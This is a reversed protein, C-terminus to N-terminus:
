VSGKAANAKAIRANLREIFLDIAPKGMSVFAPGLFPYAPVRGTSARRRSTISGAAYRRKSARVKGSQLRRLFHTVGAAGGKRPVIKHGGEVFRFYFPDGSRPRQRLQKKSAKVTVYVGITDNRGDYIKSNFTRIARRMTGAVRTRSAFDRLEANSQARKVILRSADRLAQRLVKKRLDASLEALAARAEDIGRVDIGIVDAM